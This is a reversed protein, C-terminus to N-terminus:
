KVPASTAPLTGSTAPVAVSSTPISATLGLTAIGTHLASDYNLSIVGSTSVNIPDAGTLTPGSAPPPVLLSYTGANYSVYTSYALTSSGVPCYVAQGALGAPCQAVTPAIPGIAFSGFSQAAALAVFGAIVVALFISFQKTTM